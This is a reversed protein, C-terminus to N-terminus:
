ALPRTRDDRMRAQPRQERMQSIRFQFYALAALAIMALVFLVDGFGGIGLKGTVVWVLIVFAALGNAVATGTAVPRLMGLNDPAVSLVYAFGILFAGGLQTFVEPQAIPLSFLDYLGGWTAVFMLLGILLFFVANARM